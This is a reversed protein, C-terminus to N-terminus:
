FTKFIEECFLNIEKFDDAKLKSQNMRTLQAENCYSVQQIIKQDVVDDGFSLGYYHGSYTQPIHKLMLKMEEKSIRDEDEFDFCKFAVYM